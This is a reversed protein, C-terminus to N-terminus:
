SCGTPTPTATLTAASVAPEQESQPRNSMNFIGHTNEYGQLSRGTVCCAIGRELSASCFTSERNVEGARGISQIRIRDGGEIILMHQNEISPGNLPATALALRTPSVAHGSGATAAVERM